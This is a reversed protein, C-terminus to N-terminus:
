IFPSFLLLFFPSFTSCWFVYMSLCVCMYVCVGVSPLILSFTIFLLQPSACNLHFQKRGREDGERKNTHTRRDTYTNIPTWRPTTTKQEKKKLHPLPRLALILFYYRKSAVFFSFRKLSHSSLSHPLTFKCTYQFLSWVFLWVLM